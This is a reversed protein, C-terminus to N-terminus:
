QRYWDLTIKRYDPHFKKLWFLAALVKTHQVTFIQHQIDSSGDSLDIERILHILDVKIRPLENCLVSLDKRFMVSHGNLGLQGQYMHVVLILVAIKQILLKEALSLDQLESPLDYEVNGDNDTWIPLFNNDILYRESTSRAKKCNECQKLSTQGKETNTSNM